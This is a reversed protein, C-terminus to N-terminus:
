FPRVINNLVRERDSPPEVAKGRGSMRPVEQLSGGVGQGMASQKVQNHQAIPSSRHKAQSIFTGATSSLNSAQSGMVAPLYPSKPQAQTDPTGCNWTYQMVGLTQGFVTNPNKMYKLPNRRELPQKKVFQNTYTSQLDKSAVSDFQMHLVPTKRPQERFSNSDRKPRSTQGQISVEKGVFSRASFTLDDRRGVPTVEQTGPATDYMGTGVTQLGFGAGSTQNFDLNPRKNFTSGFFTEQTANSGVPTKM